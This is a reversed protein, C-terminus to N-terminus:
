LENSGKKPDKGKFILEEPNELAEKVKVLFGVSNEMLLETTMHLLAVYMISRIEVKGDIAVPREVINHMGLILQNLLNIIPTGKVHILVGPFMQLLLHAEQLRLIFKGM